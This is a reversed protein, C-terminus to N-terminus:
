KSRYFGKRELDKLIEGNKAWTNLQIQVSKRNPEYKWKEFIEHLLDDIGVWENSHAQLGERLTGAISFGKPKNLEKKEVPRLAELAAIQITKEEIERRLKAIQLEAKELTPDLKNRM